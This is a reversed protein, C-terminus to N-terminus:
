GSIAQMHAAVADSRLMERIEFGKRAMDAVTKANSVDSGHGSFKVALWWCKGNKWGTYDIETHEM